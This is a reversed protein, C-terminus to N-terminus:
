PIRCVALIDNHWPCKLGAPAPGGPGLGRAGPGRSGPYSVLAWDVGFEAKLREFDQLTFDKWGALAETQRKWEPGLEPVQTVVATDKVADAMQSREALARFGHFDEGPAELYHPDLAFYADTPTNARVWEFAQVWANGGRDGLLLERVTWRVVSTENLVLPAGSGARLKDFPRSESVQSVESGVGHLEPQLSELELHPSHAFEMRQLAFMGGNVVLLFLGWRWVRGKLVYRGLLCGGLLVMFLYVLHLYRMPQLPTLRVLAPAGLVIMAVCQQLVGYVFVAVAFRGLVADGRRLAWRALMGFLVLPAIAGVWEYWAWRTLFYYSRTELAERWAPSPAEFVWGPLVAAWSVFAISRVRFLSGRATPRPNIGPLLRAFDARAEAGSAHRRLRARRCSLADPCSKLRALLAKLSRHAKAGAYSRRWGFVGENVVQESTGGGTRGPVRWWRAWGETGVMALICCFSIGLAAMIPHMVLAVLLLPVAQSARGNVIRAVALLILATAVNRPHLHQDALFLATGAVPLTFMAALMAVGAWQARPEAFFRSAISHAAWLTFYLTLFQGLLEAWPVPIRTVDVFWAVWRDFVTAQLQLRFFAADHPFLAPQVDAKVAALYVGDDEVGPHYGMVVFGLLAFVLVLVSKTWLRSGNM